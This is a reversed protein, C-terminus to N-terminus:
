AGAAVGLERTPTGLEARAARVAAIAFTIPIFALSLFYYQGGPLVVRPAVLAVVGNLILPILGLLAGALMLGTGNQSREAPTARAFMRVLVILCAAFYGVILGNILLRVFTNLGSTADPMTIDLAIFFVATAVAPGYVLWRRSPPELGTGRPFLLLFHLLVAFGILISTLILSNSLTRLAPSAFYPVGMFAWGFLLGFVALVTTAANPAAFYAWLGFGLYCLGIVTALRMVLMDRPSLAANVVDLTVPTGAREVEIAWPEGVAPRPRERLSRMDEAAIGGISRIRDGVQMGAAAAPGGPTVQTVTNDGDTLYGPNTQNRVDMSTFLGSVAILVALVLFTTRHRGRAAVRM